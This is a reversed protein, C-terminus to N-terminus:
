DKIDFNENLVQVLDTGYTQYDFYIPSVEALTSNTQVVLESIEEKPRHLTARELRRVVTTTLRTIVGSNKAGQLPPPKPYGTGKM